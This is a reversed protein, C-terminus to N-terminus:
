YKALHSKVRNADADPSTSGAVRVQMVNGAAM